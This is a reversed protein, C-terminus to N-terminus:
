HSQETAQRPTTFKWRASSPIQFQRPCNTWRLESIPMSVTQTAGGTNETKGVITQQPCEFSFEKKTLDYIEDILAPKSQMVHLETGAAYDQGLPCPSFSVKCLVTASATGSGAFALMAMTAVVALGLMRLHKM